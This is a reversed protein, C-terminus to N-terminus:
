TPFTQQIELEYQVGAAVAAVSTAVNNAINRSMQYCVARTAATSRPHQYTIDVRQDVYAVKPAATYGASNQGAVAEMVPVFTKKTTEIVGSPLRRKSLTVYVQAETPLTSIQERYLAFSSGDPLVKNEVPVLTHMVPPAAGDYVTINAQASM